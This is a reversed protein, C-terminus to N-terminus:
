LEGYEQELCAWIRAVEPHEWAQRFLERVQEWGVPPFGLSLAGDRFWYGEASSGAVVYGFFTEGNWLGDGRVNGRSDVTRPGLGELMALFEAIKPYRSMTYMPGHDGPLSLLLSLTDGEISEAVTLRYDGALFPPIAERHGPAKSGSHREQMEEWSEDEHIPAKQQGYHGRAAVRWLVPWYPLLAEQVSEAGAFREGALLGYLARGVAPCVKGGGRVKELLGAVASRVERETGGDRSLTQGALQGLYYGSQDPGELRAGHLAGFAELLGVWTEPRLPNKHFAETGLQIYRAVFMWEAHTLSLGHDAKKRISLLAGTPQAQMEAVELSEDRASELLGKAVESTTVAAGGRRLSAVERMAELRGRLGATMRMSFTQVQGGFEEVM